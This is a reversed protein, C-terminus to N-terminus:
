RLQAISDIHETSGRGGKVQGCGSGGGRVQGQRIINRMAEDVEVTLSGFLHNLRLNEELKKVYDEGVFDEPSPDRISVVVFSGRGREKPRMHRDEAAASTRSRPKGEVGEEGEEQFLPVHLTNRYHAPSSKKRARAPKRNSFSLRARLSNRLRRLSPSRGSDLPHPSDVVTFNESKAFRNQSNGPSESGGMSLTSAKLDETEM